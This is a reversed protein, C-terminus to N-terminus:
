SGFLSNALLRYGHMKVFYIKSSGFQALLYRKDGVVM